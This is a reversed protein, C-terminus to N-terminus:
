DAYGPPPCFGGLERAMWAAFAIGLRDNGEAGIAQLGLPLRDADCGTPFVTSPLYSCTALGAWFLQQFYPLQMGDILLKRGRYAGHDHPFATTAAVPCIVLDWDRFFEHWQMRLQTRQDHLQLWKRHTLTSTPDTEANLLERYVLGAHESSFGPRASDSVKAGRRALERGLWLCRETIRAQVPARADEAWIAVRLGQLSAPPERLQVRCHSDVPRPGATVALLVALDEATRTLPGAVCLDPLSSREPPGLRTVGVLNYTPKHGYVGCYHAPGRISGGIDSGFEVGALGAALAAASGGSSGGPGRELNWPNRTVGYVDNYSQLDTLHMPVNSKGFLVAGAARLRQVVIDDEAAICGAFQPDGRTTALGAVDFSEKITMPVGHLPGVMAGNALAADCARASRYAREWDLVVVANIGANFREIRARFYDLAEVASLEKSRIRAAIAAAGSFCLATM